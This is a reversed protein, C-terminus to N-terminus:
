MDEMDPLQDRRSEIWLRIGAYIVALVLASAGVVAIKLIVTM